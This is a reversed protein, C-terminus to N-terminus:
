SALGLTSMRKAHNETLRAFVKGLEALDMGVGDPGGVIIVALADRDAAVRQAQALAEGVLRRGWLALRGAISPDAAIAARVREVVFDAHGADAIVDAVLQQTDQDVATAIQRYFDSAIQDGVYAKVLGELWTSPVTNAHFTAYPERFPAMADDASVGLAALRDRIREFHRFEAVAMGALEAQDALSAAMEADAALRQFASLEGYGLAGLLDIIGARYEPDDLHQEVGAVM